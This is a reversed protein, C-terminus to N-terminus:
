SSRGASVAGDADADVVVGDGGGFGQGAVQAIGEPLDV